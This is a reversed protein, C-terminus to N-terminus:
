QDSDGWTLTLHVLTCDDTIFVCLVDILVTVAQTLPLMFIPWLVSVCCEGVYQRAIPIMNLLHRYIQLFVILHHIAYICLPCYICVIFLIYVCHVTYICLPCYIYVISLIYIYIYVCHITLFALWYVSFSHGDFVFLPVLSKFETSDGVLFFTDSNNATWNVGCFSTVCLLCSHDTRRLPSGAM